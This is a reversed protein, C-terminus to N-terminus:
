RAEGLAPPPAAPPRVGCFELLFPRSVARRAAGIISWTRCATWELSAQGSACSRTRSSCQECLGLTSEGPWRRPCMSLRSCRMLLMRLTPRFCFSLSSPVGNERELGCLSCLGRWMMSRCHHSSGLFPSHLGYIGFHQFLLQFDRWCLWVLWIGRKCFRWCLLAGSIM